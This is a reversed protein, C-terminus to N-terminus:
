YFDYDCEFIHYYHDFDCNNDANKSQIESIVSPMNPYVQTIFTSSVIAQNTDIIDEDKNKRSDIINKTVFYRTFINTLRYHSFNRVLVVRNM